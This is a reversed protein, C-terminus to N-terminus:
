FGIDLLAQGYTQVGPPLVSEDGSIAAAVKMRWYIHGEMLNLMLRFTEDDYRLADRPPVSGGLTYAVYHALLM